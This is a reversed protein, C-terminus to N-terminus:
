PEVAEAVGFGFGASAVDEVEDVSVPAVVVRVTHLAQEPVLVNARHLNQEGGFIASRKRELTAHANLAIGVGGDGNGDGNVPMKVTMKMAVEAIEGGRLEIVGRRRSRLPQKLRHQRNETGVAAEIAGHEKFQDGAIDRLREINRPDAHPEEIRGFLVDVALEEEGVACWAIASTEGERAVIVRRVEVRDLAAERNAGVVRAIVDGGAAEGGVVERRELDTRHEVRRNAVAVM